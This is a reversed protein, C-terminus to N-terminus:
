KNKGKEYTTKIPYIINWVKEKVIFGLLFLDFLALTKVANMLFGKIGIKKLFDKGFYHWLDMVEAIKIYYYRKEQNAVRTRTALPEPVTKIQYGKKAIKLALDYEHMGRLKENWWGIEKLVDRKLMYTSTNSFNFSQLLDEYTPEKKNKDIVYNNGSIIKTYSVVLGVKEDQFIQIQKETKDETWSDDDDLM